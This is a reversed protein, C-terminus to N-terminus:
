KDSREKLWEELLRDIGESVGNAMFVGFSKIDDATYKLEANEARKWIGGNCDNPTKIAVCLKHDDLAVCGSCYGFEIESTMVYRVGEFNKEM